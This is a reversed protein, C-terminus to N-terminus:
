RGMRGCFFQISNVVTHRLYPFFYIENEFDIGGKLNPYSSPPLPQSFSLYSLNHGSRVPHQLIDFFHSFVTSLPYFVFYIQIHTDTHLLLSSTARKRASKTHFLVVTAVLFITRTKTYCVRQPTTSCAGVGLCCFTAM